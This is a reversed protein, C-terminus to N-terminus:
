NKLITKEVRFILNQPDSVQYAPIYSAYTRNPIKNETLRWEFAIGNERWQKYEKPHIYPAVPKLYMQFDWDYM